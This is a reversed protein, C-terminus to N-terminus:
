EHSPEETRRSLRKSLASRSLGLMRAAADQNGDSRRLAEEMLSATIQRITPLVAADEFLKGGGSAAAVPEPGAADPRGMAQRFSDLSLMRSQHRVLADVVMGELERVNGPFSYSRLLTLLEKPLAPRKKGLATCAKDFFHEVLAPLDDMRERLPPIRITHSQLRYLLDKRFGGRSVAASPDVNSAFVFRASTPRPEDSGLAYYEREQLLRLIKIQSNAALDGIEDLFLTGDEAKAVVGERASDAGTYAGKAHGFLTDAFLTEDLGAINVTVFSGKRGSLAHIARAVLEKGTGTEGTIFVPLATPAIAEVYRFVQFMRRDSTVIGAFARSRELPTPLMGDQLSRMERSTEWREIAHRLSTLLRTRDVPKTLYDFAGARMCRVATDLETTATVVIAPSEPREELLVKLVEEGSIGPMSLDLIVAAHAKSAILKLAERGEGSEEVNTVGDMLLAAKMSQRALEEDDVILVPDAPYPRSM